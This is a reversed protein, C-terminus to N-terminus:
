TLLVVTARCIELASRHDSDPALGVRHAPV